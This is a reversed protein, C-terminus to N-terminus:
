YQIWQARLPRSTDVGVLSAKALVAVVWRATARNVYTKLIGDITGEEGGVEFRGGVLVWGQGRLRDGVAELADWSIPTRSRHAGLLLVLGDFNMEEVVFPKHSSLTHLCAGPAISKRIGKQVPGASVSM